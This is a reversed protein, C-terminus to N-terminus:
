EGVELTLEAGGAELELEARLQAIEPSHPNLISAHALAAAQAPGETARALDLWLSWDERDRALAREFTARAADVEGQALEAEGLAALPQSSWPAITAAHRASAEAEAFNGAAAEARSHALAAAGTAAVLSFGGICIAAALAGLRVGAPM